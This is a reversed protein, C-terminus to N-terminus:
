IGGKILYEAFCLDEVTTIKFNNYDGDVTYVPYGYNEVMSCDDTFNELEEYCHELAKKYLELSFGQPTQVSVISNRDLTRKVQGDDSIIKLTDKSKVACTVALHKITGDVVRKICSSSVFPRAGDHILVYDTNEDLCKVGNAASAQRCDGGVVIDSVKNIDYEDCLKQFYLVNSEKTVIVINSILESEQFAMVSRIAVPIGDLETLMKDVGNMRSSSGGCLVVASVKKNETEPVKTYELKCETIPM